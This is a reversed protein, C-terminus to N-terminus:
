RRRALGISDPIRDALYTAPVGLVDLGPVAARAPRLDAGGLEHHDAHLPSSAANAVTLNYAPDITSPMLNPYLAGFYLVVLSAVVVTTYAFAWGEGTRRWVRTLVAFQALGGAILVLWTWTKGHSLQTWLAFTALVVTVPVALRNAFRLADDRM